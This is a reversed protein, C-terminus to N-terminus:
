FRVPSRNQRTDGLAGSKAGEQKRQVYFIDCWVSLRFYSRQASSQTQKQSILFSSSVIFSWLSISRNPQQCHIPTHSKLRDFANIICSVLFRVLFIWAEYVKFPVSRSFTSLMLYRPPTVIVFSKLHFVCTLLTQVLALLARQNRLRLKYEHGLLYFFCRIPAGLGPIHCNPKPGGPTTRWSSNSLTCFRATLNTVPLIVPMRQCNFHSDRLFLLFTLLSTSSYLPRLPLALISVSSRIGLVIRPLFWCEIANWVKMALVFTQLPLQKGWVILSQFARGSEGIEDASSASSKTALNM